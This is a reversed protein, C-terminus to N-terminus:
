YVHRLHGLHLRLAKPGRGDGLRQADTPRADIPRRRGQADRAGESWLNTLWLVELNNAPAVPYSAKLHKM